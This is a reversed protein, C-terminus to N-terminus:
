ENDFFDLFEALRKSNLLAEDRGVLQARIRALEDGGYAEHVPTIYATTKGQKDLLKIGLTHVAEVRHAPTNHVHQGGSGGLEFWKWVGPMWKSFAIPYADTIQLKDNDGYVYGYAVAGDGFVWGDITVRMDQRTQKAM